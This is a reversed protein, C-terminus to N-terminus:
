SPASGKAFPLAIPVIFKIRSQQTNSSASEGMAAIVVSIGGKINSDETATVIVDFEVPFVFTKDDPTTGLINGRFEKSMAGSWVYPNEFQGV